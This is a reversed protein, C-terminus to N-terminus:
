LRTVFNKLKQKTQLNREMDQLM